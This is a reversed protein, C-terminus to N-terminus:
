KGHCTKNRDEELISERGDERNFSAVVPAVVIFIELKNKSKTTDISHWQGALIHHIVGKRLKFTKGNLQFIGEGGLCLYLEDGFPHVHNVVKQGPEMIFYYYEMKAGAYELFNSPIHSESGKWYITAEPNYIDGKVVINNVTERLKRNEKLFSKSRRGKMYKMGYKEM